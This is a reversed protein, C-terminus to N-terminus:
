VRAAQDLRLEMFLMLPELGSLSAENHDFIPRDQFGLSRYLAHAERMFTATELRAVHYGITRADALLRELIARGIGQGRAQPRVYMRKIEVVTSDVPKLAGVGVVVSSACAVLLRGRPGLLHPLEETFERHHAAVAADPDDFVVGHDAALRERCWTLYERLIQETFAEARAPPGDLQEISAM